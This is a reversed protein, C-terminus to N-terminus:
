SSLLRRFGETAFPEEGGLVRRLVDHAAREASSRLEAEYGAAEFEDEDVLVAPRGEDVVVDLCLDRFELDGDPRRVTPTCIDVKLPMVRDTFWATWWEDTPLYGVVERPWLWILHRGRMTPSFQPVRVWRGELTEEVVDVVFSGQLHDPYEYKWMTAAHELTFPEVPAAYTTWDDHEVLPHFGRREYWRRNDVLAHRVGLRIEARDHAIAIGRCADMLFDGVGRRQHAPDVAVRKVWLHDLEVRWRLAGLPHDWAEDYALLGGGGAAVDAAVDDLTEAIAGSPRALSAYPAFAARTLQHLAEIREPREPHTPLLNYAARRDTM